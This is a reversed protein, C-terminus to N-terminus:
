GRKIGIYIRSGLQNDTTLLEGSPLLVAKIGLYDGLILCDNTNFGKKRVIKKISILSGENIFSDSPLYTRIYSTNIDLFVPGHAGEERTIKIVFEGCIYWKDLETQILYENKKLNVVNTIWFLRDGNNVCQYNDTKLIIGRPLKKSYSLKSMQRRSIFADSGIQTKDFIQYLSARRMYPTMSEFDKTMVYYGHDTKTWSLLTLQSLTYLADQIDQVTSLLHSEFQPFSNKIVPLILNRIKNRSYDNEKNTYDTIYSIGNKKLYDIIDFTSTNLLPRYYPHREEPIGHFGNLGSGSIFRMMYLEILDDKHHATFIVDNKALTEEFYTYRIKRAAMEISLNRESAYDEIYGPECVLKKLVLGYQGSFSEVFAEEKDSESSDRLNHKIYILGKLNDKLSSNYVALALYVSDKGGSFAIWIGKDFLDHHRCFLVLDDNLM